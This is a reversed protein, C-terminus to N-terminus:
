FRFGFASIYKQREVNLVYVFRALSSVKMRSMILISKGQRVGEGWFTGFIVCANLICQKKMHAFIEELNM